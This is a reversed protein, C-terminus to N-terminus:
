GTFKDTPQSLLFVVPTRASTGRATALATDAQAILQAKVNEWNITQRTYDHRDTKEGSMLGIQLKPICEIAVTLYLYEQAIIEKATTPNFFGKAIDPYKEELRIAATTLDISSDPLEDPSVQLRSRVAAANLNLYKQATVMYSIRTTQTLGESIWTVFLTRSGLLEGAPLANAAAPLTLYFRDQSLPITVTLAQISAVIDGLGDCLSYKVTADTNLQPEGTADIFVVLISAEKNDVQWSTM